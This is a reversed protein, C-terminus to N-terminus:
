KAAREARIKASGKRTRRRPIKSVLNKAERTAEYHLVAVQTLNKKGRLGLVKAIAKRHVNVTQVTIGLVDSIERSKKGRGILRFIEYQRRSLKGLIQEAKQEEGTRRREAKRIDTMDQFSIILKDELPAASILIDRM